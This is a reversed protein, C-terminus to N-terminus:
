KGKLVDMLAYYAPKPQFNEDFPLPADAVGFYQPIWSYRDTLGWVVFAKCNAASLCVGLMDGYIEAQQKLGQLTNNEAIRVDMETIHMELGLAGLRQMNAVVESTAPATNLAIHMQLGVGHIPIGEKLLGQVMQYVAESKPSLGEAGYDNYFLKAQPNAEHAWQFALAIYQPGIHRLWITDRLTGQEDFAENVVDWAVVKGRYHGVVTHIHERLITMWEDQTFQGQLIWKPLQNHWVLTHGRVAMGHAQAFDVLLDALSFDYREPEPHIYEFKMVNEPTLMNYEQALLEAYRPEQSIAKADAAAGIWFGRAEALARLTPETTLTPIPHNQRHTPKPTSTSTELAPVRACNVILLCFLFLMFRRM